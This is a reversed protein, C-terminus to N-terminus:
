FSSSQSPSLMLLVAGHNMYYWCPKRRTTFCKSYAIAGRASVQIGADEPWQNSRTLSDWEEATATTCDQMTIVLESMLIDETTFLGIGMGLVGTSRPKYKAKQVTGKTQKRQQRMRIGIRSDLTDNLRTLRKKAELRTVRDNRNIVISM